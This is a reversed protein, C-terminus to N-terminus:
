SRSVPFVVVVDVIRGFIADLWRGYYGTLAGVFTGFIFPFLTTFLAIQLDVRAGWIVRSFIDRGFNDTGFPHAASPPQMLTTYDFAAPDYPALQAPFLATILFVLLLLLGILLTPKPRVRLLSRPANRETSLAPSAM